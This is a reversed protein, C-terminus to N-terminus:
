SRCISTPSADFLFKLLDVDHHKISLMTIHPSSESDVVINRPQKFFLAAPGALGELASQVPQEALSEICRRIPVRFLRKDDFRARETDTRHQVAM